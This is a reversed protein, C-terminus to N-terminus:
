RPPVTASHHEHALRRLAVFIAGFVISGVVM